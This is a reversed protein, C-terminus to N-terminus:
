LLPLTTGFYRILLYRYSNSVELLLDYIRGTLASYLVICMLLLIGNGYAFMTLSIDHQLTAIIAIDLIMCYMVIILVSRASVAGVRTSDSSHIVL